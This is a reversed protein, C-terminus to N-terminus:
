RRNLGVLWQLATVVQYRDQNIAEATKRVFTELVPKGTERSVVIWSGCHPELEPIM